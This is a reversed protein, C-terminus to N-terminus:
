LAPHLRTKNAEKVILGLEIYIELFDTRCDTVRQTFHSDLM